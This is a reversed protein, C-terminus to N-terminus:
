FQYNRGYYDGQSFSTKINLARPFQYELEISKIRGITERILSMIGNENRNQNVGMNKTYDSPPGDFFVIPELLKNNQNSKLPNM